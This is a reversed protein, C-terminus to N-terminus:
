KPQCVAHLVHVMCVAPLLCMTCACSEDDDAVSAASLGSHHLCCRSHRSDWWGSWSAPAAGVKFRTQSTDAARVQQLLSRATQLADLAEQSSANEKEQWIADNDPNLYIEVMQLLAPTGWLSDNRVTNFEKLAERPENMFRRLLM